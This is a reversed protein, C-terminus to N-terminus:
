LHNVLELIYELTYEDPYQRVMYYKKITRDPLMVDIYTLSIINDEKDRIKPYIEGFSYIDDIIAKDDLDKFLSLSSKETIAYLRNDHKSVIAIRNIIAM